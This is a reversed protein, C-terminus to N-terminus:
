RLKITKFRKRWMKKDKDSLKEWAEEGLYLKASFIYIDINQDFASIIDKDGSAYGSAKVEASSIDFYSMLYNEDVKNGFEDFHYPTSICNKCDGHSIITHFGSSGINNRNFLNLRGYPKKDKHELSETNIYSRM